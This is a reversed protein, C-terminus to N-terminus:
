DIHQKTIESSVLKKGDIYHFFALHHLPNSAFPEPIQHIGHDWLFRSFEYDSALRDRPNGSSHYYQKIVGIIQSDRRILFIRNNIGGTMPSLEFPEDQGAADLLATVHNMFIKSIMDPLVENPYGL